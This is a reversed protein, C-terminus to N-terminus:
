WEDILRPTKGPLLREPITSSIFLNQEENLLDDMRVVINSVQFATTTKGRWKPGRILVAGKYELKEQLLRDVIRNRYEIMFLM